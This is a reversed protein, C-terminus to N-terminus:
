RKTDHGCGGRRMSLGRHRPRANVDVAMTKKVSADNWSSSSLFYVNYFGTSLNNWTVSKGNKKVWVGSTPRSASATGTESYWDLTLANQVWVYM